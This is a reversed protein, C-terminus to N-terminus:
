TQIWITTEIRGECCVSLAVRGDILSTFINHQYYLVEGDKIAGALDEVIDGEVHAVSFDERHDSWVARAFRSENARRASDNWVATVDARIAIVKCRQIRHL